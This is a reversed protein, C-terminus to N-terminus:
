GVDNLVDGVGLPDAAVIGRMQKLRAVEERKWEDDKSSGWLEEVQTEVSMTAASAAKNITDVRSNFDPAGYEGFSVSPNYVGPTNGTMNDYTMLIASILQPLVKELRETITNRTYGTVDKKERQAEASAMKGVDIGLTAPSMIGQLCLDLAATYSAVFAEYRIEPQIAEIKNVIGESSKDETLIYESGFDNLPTLKGSIPDVPVMDRPIYKKVRGARIADWWQSIVEDLADFDDLKQEYLAKGRGPFKPSDYFRLPVAMIFDGDYETPNKKELEKLERVRSLPVEKGGDYLIYSVRNKEYLECLRYEKHGERYGSWFKVGTIRGHKANYEVRDAEWFEVIPYPSIDLNVSIKFAGDASKLAGVVGRGVIEPWDLANSNQPDTVTSWTDKGAGRAFSVTDMDAKVLHALTDVMIAPLGSHIKRLKTGVPAAAWFRSGATPDYGGLNKYLQELEAAEGRYWLQNRVVSGMFSVPEQIMIGMDRAPQIQLWNQLMSKVKEGLKM